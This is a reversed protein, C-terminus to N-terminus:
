SSIVVTQARQAEVRKAWTLENESYIATNEECKTLGRIIEGLMEEDNLDHIFQENLQRDIEKYNCEVAATRLRGMLEEVSENSQRILKHFQLSKVTENYQPKLKRNLM